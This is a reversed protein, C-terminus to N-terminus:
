KLGDLQRATFVHNSGDESSAAAVQTRQQPDWRSVLNDVGREAAGFLAKPDAPLRRLPAHSGLRAMPIGDAPIPSM